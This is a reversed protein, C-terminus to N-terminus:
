EEPTASVSRADIRLSRAHGFRAKSGGPETQPIRGRESTRIQDEPRMVAAGIAVRSSRAVLPPTPVDRLSTLVRLQQFWDALTPWERVKAGIALAFM